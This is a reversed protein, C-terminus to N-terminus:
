SMPPAQEELYLIRGCGRCKVLHDARSVEVLTQANVQIFCGSCVGEAIMALPAQPFRAVILEYVAKHEALVRSAKEQHEQSKENERENLTKLTETTETQLKTFSEEVAAVESEETSLIAELKSIRDLMGLLREEQVSLQKASQEIEKQAAQQVKYNNFSQLAKRRDVLKENEQQLRNEERQYEAKDNALRTRKGALHEQKKELDRVALDLAEQLQKKEARILAISSDIQSLAILHSFVNVRDEGM